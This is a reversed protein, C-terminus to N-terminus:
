APQLNASPQISTRDSKDVTCLLEYWRRVWTQAAYPAALQQSNAGWSPLSDYQHHITTLATALQDASDAPVKLGNYWSRVVEVGSGCAHSCVIPLGAAAAEVIALPWPDFKSPLVFAGAEQWIDAMADPQVFGRDEIGPQNKLLTALEGKGCCILPWPDSVGTRYCQYAEVLRDISKASAYRGAFLFTKPWAMKQRKTLLPSLSTYNVGYLGRHIREPPVGLYVAYQWSREGTVVVHHMRALFSRLVLPAVRQRLTARWPTDMGMIFCVHAFAPDYALQRYAKSLWGCMVIVDPKQAIVHQRILAVDNRETLNLLYCPIDAMLSDSFATQTRAQFALVYLDINPQQQLARWCAAMYGSIDTWCFVVKLGM